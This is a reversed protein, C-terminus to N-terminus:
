SSRKTLAGTDFSPIKNKKKYKEFVIKSQHPFCFAVYNNNQTVFCNSWSFSCLIM